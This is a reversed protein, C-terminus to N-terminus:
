GCRRRVGARGVPRAGGAAGPPPGPEWDLEWVRVTGDRDGALVLRGDPPAAVCSADHGDM